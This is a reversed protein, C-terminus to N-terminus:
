SSVGVCVAYGILLSQCNSGIAPNWQYLQAFTISYQTEIGSCSDGSQVTYYKNCNAATGSQTPAPPTVQTPGQVCYAEGLLLNTCNSNVAITLPTDSSSPYFSVVQIGSYSSLSHLTSILTSSTVIIEQSFQISNKADLCLTPQHPDWLPLPQHALALV